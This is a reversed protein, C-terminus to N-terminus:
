NAAALGNGAIARQPTTWSTPCRVTLSSPSPEFGEAGALEKSEALTIEGNELLIRSELLQVLESAKGLSKYPMANNIELSTDTSELRSERTATACHRQVVAPAAGDALLASAAGHRLSHFGARPIGLTDLLPHLQKERLKDACLPGAGIPSFCNAGVTMDLCIPM